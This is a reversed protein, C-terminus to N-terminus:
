FTHATNRVLLMNLRVFRSFANKEGYFRQRSVKTMNKFGANNIDINALNCDEKTIGKNFSQEIKSTTDGGVLM